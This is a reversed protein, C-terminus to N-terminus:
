HGESRNAGAGSPPGLAAQGWHRPGLAVQGWRWKAGAGRGWHREQGWRRQNARAGRGCAGNLDTPGLAVRSRNARAGHGWRWKAETPGLAMAGSGDLDKQGLAVHIWIDSTPRTNSSNCTPVPAPLPTNRAPKAPPNPLVASSDAPSPKYLLVICLM